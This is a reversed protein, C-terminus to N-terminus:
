DEPRRVEAKAKAKAVAKAKAKAKAIRPVDRCSGM